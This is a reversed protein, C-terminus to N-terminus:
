TTRMESIVQRALVLFAERNNPVVPGFAEEAAREFRKRFDECFFHVPMRDVVKECGSYFDSDSM